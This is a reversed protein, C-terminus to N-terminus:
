YSICSSIFFNLRLEKSISFVKKKVQPGVWILFREDRHTGISLHCNIQSVVSLQAQLKHDLLFNARYSVGGSTLQSQLLRGIVTIETAFVLYSTNRLLCRTPLLVQIQCGTPLPCGILLHGQSQYGVPLQSQLLHVWNFMPKQASTCFWTAESLLYIVSWVDVM